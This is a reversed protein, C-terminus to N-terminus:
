ENLLRSLTLANNVAYGGADNNFYAFVDKGSQTWQKMREAWGALEEDSYPSSYKLEAGHFRVYAFGGTVEIPSVMDPLDHICFGISNSDLLSFLDKDYWTENRFEFTYRYEKPLSVVFVELRPIDKKLGPPLQFLVPGCKEALPKISNFFRALPETCNNLRKIHTIFRSAKVAFIFGEPTRKRWNECVAPKPLHYFSSNIEV